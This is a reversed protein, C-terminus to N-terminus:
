YRRRKRYDVLLELICKDDKSDEGQKRAIFERRKM